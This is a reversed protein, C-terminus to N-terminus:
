PKKAPLPRVSKVSAIEVPEPALFGWEGADTTHPPETHGAGSSLRQAANQPAPSHVGSQSAQQVRSEGERRESGERRRHALVLDAVRDVHEVRIADAQELSALARAAKLM